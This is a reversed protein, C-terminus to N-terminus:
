RYLQPHNLFEGRQYDQETWTRTTKAQPFIYRWVEPIEENETWDWYPLGLDTDKLYPEMAEELQVTLHCQYTVLEIYTFLM